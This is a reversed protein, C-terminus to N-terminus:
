SNFITLDKVTLEDCQLLGKMRYCGCFIYHAEFLLNNLLLCFAIKRFGAM